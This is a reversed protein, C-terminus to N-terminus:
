LREGHAALFSLKVQFSSAAMAGNEDLYRVEADPHHEGVIRCVQVMRGSPLKIWDNIKITSGSM